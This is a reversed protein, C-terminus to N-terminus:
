TLSLENKILSPPSTPNPFCWKFIAHGGRLKGIKECPGGKYRYNKPIVGGWFFNFLCYKSKLKKLIERNHGQKVNNHESHLCYKCDRYSLSSNNLFCILLFLLWNRIEWNHSARLTHCKAEWQYRGWRFQHICSHRWKLWRRGWLWHCWQWVWWQWKWGNWQQWCKGQQWKTDIDQCKETNTPWSQSSEEAPLM